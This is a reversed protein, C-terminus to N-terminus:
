AANTDARANNRRDAISWGAGLVLAALVLKVLDGPIFPYVAGAFLEGEAPWGYNFVSLWILAPVYVWINGLLMAWLSKARIWGRESMFGIIPVATLFGILYGGTVGTIAGYGRNFDWSLDPNAFMPAGVTGLLYYVIIALSGWRLGLFGGMALVGATQFTIPVPNDPLYFYLKGCVALAIVAALALLARQLTTLSPFLADMLSPNRAGILPTAAERVRAASAGTTMQM